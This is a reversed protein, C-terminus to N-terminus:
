FGMQREAEMFDEPLPAEFTKTEGSPLNITIQYSHLALRRFGLLPARNPAYLSDGIVPHNLAKLHVRIQHTRGTKPSVELYSVDSNKKLVKWNTVAERLEGRTGREATWKRFDGSSRGIPRDITGSDVPMPGYVFTRYVKQIERDQFQSKLHLYADQNKAIVLVGSTDRDLRHVIGPRFLIEGTSLTIPEGVEKLEPNRTLIWDVLTAEKIHGDPHVVLGWPKNIVLVDNDEYLIQIDM